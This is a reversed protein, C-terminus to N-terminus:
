PSTCHIRKMYIRFLHFLSVFFAQNIGVDICGSSTAVTTQRLQKQAHHEPIGSSPTPPLRRTLTGTTTVVHYYM